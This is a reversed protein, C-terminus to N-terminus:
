LEGDGTLEKAAIKMNDHLIPRPVGQFRAFAPNHGERFSETNDAPFRVVPRGCHTAGGINASPSRFGYALSPLVALFFGARAAFSYRRREM